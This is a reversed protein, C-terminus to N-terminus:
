VHLNLTIEILYTIIYKIIGWINIVMLINIQNSLPCFDSCTIVYSLFWIGHFIGRLLHGRPIHYEQTFLNECKGWWCAIFTYYQGKDLINYIPGSVLLTLYFISIYTFIVSCSIQTCTVCNHSISLVLCSLYRIFSFFPHSYVILYHNLGYKRQRTNNFIKRIGCINYNFSISKLQYENLSIQSLSGLNTFIPLWSVRCLFYPSFQNYLVQGNTYSFSHM